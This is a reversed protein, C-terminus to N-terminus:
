RRGVAVVAVPPRGAAVATGVAVVAVATGVSWRAAPRRGAKAATGALPCFYM